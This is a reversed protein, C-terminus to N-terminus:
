AWSQHEAERAALKTMRLNQQQPHQWPHSCPGKHVPTCVTFHQRFSRLPKAIGTSDNQPTWGDFCSPARTLTIERQIGLLGRYTVM